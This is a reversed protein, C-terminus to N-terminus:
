GLNFFKLRFMIKIQLMIILEYRGRGKRKGHGAVYM